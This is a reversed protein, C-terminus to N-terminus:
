RRGATLLPTLVRLLDPQRLPKALWGDFGAECYEGTQGAFTNGTVALCLADGATKGGSPTGGFYKRLKGLVQTGSLVPMQIDLLLVDYGTAVAREYAEHGDAAADVSAGLQELMKTLVMRNAASDDAVLVRKGRLVQRPASHSGPPATECAETIPMPLTVHVSTGEGYSSEARIRGQMLEVIQQVIAMGLGTGGKDRASAVDAQVFPKFLHEMEGPSIGCGSDRIHIQLGQATGRLCLRVSGADTFKVANSLLNGIIQALRFSDGLRMEGEPVNVFKVNLDVNKAAATASFLKAMDHIMDRLDFPAPVLELKGADIKAIELADNLLRHLNQASRSVARLLKAQEQPAVVPTPGGQMLLDVSGIIANLPTRIEHSMHALCSKRAEADQRAQAEDMRAKRIAHKSLIRHDVCCAIQRLTQLDDDSWERPSQDLVCFAGIATGDPLHVPVGLCAPAAGTGTDTDTGTGAASQAALLSPLLASVHPQTIRVADGTAQIHACVVQMLAMNQLDPDGAATGTRSKCAMGGESRSAFSLIAAEARLVRAALDTLTDFAPEADAELLGLERTQVDIADPKLTVAHNM